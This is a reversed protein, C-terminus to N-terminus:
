LEEIKNAHIIKLPFVLLEIVVDPFFFMQCTDEHRKSLYFFNVILECVLWIIKSDM